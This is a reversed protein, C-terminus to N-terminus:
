VRKLVLSVQNPVLYLDAAAFCDAAVEIEEIDRYFSIYNQYLFDILM